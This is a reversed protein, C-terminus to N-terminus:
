NNSYQKWLQWLKKWCKSDLAADDIIGLAPFWSFEGEGDPGYYDWSVANPNTAALLTPLSWQWTDMFTIKKLIEPNLHRQLWTKTFWPHCAVSIINDNYSKINKWLELAFVLNALKSQYYERKADYPKEWRL